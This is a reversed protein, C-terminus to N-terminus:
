DERHRAPEPRSTTVNSLGVLGAVAAVVTFVALKGLRTM